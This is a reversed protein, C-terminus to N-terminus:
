CWSPLSPVLICVFGSLCASPIIHSNIINFPQSSSVFDLCPHLLLTIFCVWTLCCAPLGFCPLCILCLFFFFFVWVLLFASQSSGPEYLYPTYYDPLPHLLSAPKRIPHSQLWHAALSYTPPAPWTSISPFYFWRIPFSQTPTDTQMLSRCLPFSFFCASLLCLARSVSWLIVCIWHTATICFIEFHTTTHWIWTYRCRVGFRNLHRGAPWMHALLLRRTDWGTTWGSICLFWSFCM